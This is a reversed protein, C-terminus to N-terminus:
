SRARINVRFITVLIVFYLFNPEIFLNQFSFLMYFTSYYCYFVKWIFGKNVQTYLFVGILSYPLMPIFSFYPGFDVSFASLATEVTAVGLLPARMEQFHQFAPILELQHLKLLGVLIPRLMFAGFSYDFNWSNYELFTDVNEFSMPFYAYLFALIEHLPGQYYFRLNESYSVQYLDGQGWRFTVIWFGIVVICAYLMSARLLFMKKRPSQLFLFVSCMGIAIFIDFRALRTLPMLLVFLFIVYLLSKPVASKFQAVIYVISLLWLLTLLTGAIGVQLTHEIVGISNSQFVPFLVGNSLINLVIQLSVGFICLGVISTFRFGSSLEAYGNLRSVAIDHYNRSRYLLILNPILYFVVIAIIILVYTDFRWERQFQSLQLRNFCLPVIFSVFFLSSPSVLNSLKFSLAYHLTVIILVAILVFYM